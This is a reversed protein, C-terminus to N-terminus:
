CNSSAQQLTDDLKAQLLLVGLVTRNMATSFINLEAGSFCDPWAFGLYLLYM